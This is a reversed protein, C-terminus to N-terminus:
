VSVVSIEGCVFGPHRINNRTVIDDARLANGYTEYAMVLSPIPRRLKMLILEPLKEFPLAQVAEARLASQAIYLKTNQTRDMEDDLVGIIKSLIMEADSRTEYDADVACRVAESVSSERILSVLANHNKVVASELLSGSSTKYNGYCGLEVAEDATQGYSHGDFFGDTFSLIAGQISKALALPQSVLNKLSGADVGIKNFFSSVDSLAEFAVFEPYGAVSFESSFNEAAAADLRDASEKTDAIYDGSENPYKNEGSEVFQISFRAMRGEAGSENMSYSDCQVTVSGLYPHVLEGEGHKNLANILNDRIEMYDGGVVYADVNFRRVKLGLDETYPEDRLPYEHTVLRRGGSLEHSPVFFSVGRFSAARMSDKWNM